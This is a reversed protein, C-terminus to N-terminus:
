ESREVEELKEKGKVDEREGRREGESGRGENGKVEEGLSGANEQQRGKVM